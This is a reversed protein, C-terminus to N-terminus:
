SIHDIIPYLIHQTNARMRAKEWLSFPHGRERQSLTPTLTHRIIIFYQLGM